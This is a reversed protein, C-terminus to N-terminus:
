AIATKFVLHVSLAWPESPGKQTFSFSFSGFPPRPSASQGGKGIGAGGRAAHKTPARPLFWTDTGFVAKKDVQNDSKESIPLGDSTRSIQPLIGQFKVDNPPETKPGKAQERDGPKRQGQFPVPKRRGQFLFFCVFLLALTGAM